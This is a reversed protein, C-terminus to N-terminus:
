ENGFNTKCFDILDDITTEINFNCFKFSQTYLSTYKLFKGIETKKAVVVEPTFGLFKQSRKQILRAMDIISISQGCGINITTPLAEKPLLLIKLTRESITSLPIFDRQQEGSSRLQLKGLIVAQRCLDNVLLDWCNSKVNKPIGFGNSLRLSVGEIRQRLVEHSLAYEAALHSSAYPHTNQPTTNEDITGELPSKYVHATSLYVFRKTGARIAAQIMRTTAVGNFKMASVPDDLCDQANMGAAHVIADVGQCITALATEDEWYTKVVEAQPLWCPSSRDRRSGLIVQHGNQLLYEGLNAGIYGFGGTILVRM